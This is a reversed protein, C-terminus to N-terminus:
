RHAKRCSCTGTVFILTAKEIVANHDPPVPQSECFMLLAKYVRDTLRVTMKKRPANAGFQEKSM